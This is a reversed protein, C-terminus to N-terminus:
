RGMRAIREESVRKSFAYVPRFEYGRLANELDSMLYPAGGIMVKLGEGSAYDGDPFRKRKERIAIDAIHFARNLINSADPLEEFTLLEQLMEKEGVEVVGAEVQEPTAPHQTLNLIVRKKEDVSKAREMQGENM